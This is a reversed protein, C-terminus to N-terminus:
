VRTLRCRGVKFTRQSTKNIFTPLMEVKGANLGVELEVSEGALGVIVPETGEGMDVEM